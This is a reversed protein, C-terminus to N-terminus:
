VYTIKNQKKEISSFMKEKRNNNNNHYDYYKKEVVGYRFVYLILFEHRPVRERAYFVACYVTQAEYM